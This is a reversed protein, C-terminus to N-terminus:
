SLQPMHKIAFIQERNLKIECMDRDQFLTQVINDRVNSQDCQFRQTIM